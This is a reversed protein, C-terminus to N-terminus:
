GRRVVCWRWCPAAAAARGPRPCRLASGTNCPRRGRTACPRGRLRFAAGHVCRTRRVVRHKPGQALFLVRAKKASGHRMGIQRDDVRMMVQPVKGMSRQVVRPELVRLGFRVEEAVLRRELVVVQRGVIAAVGGTVVDNCGHVDLGLAAALLLDLFGRPEGRLCAVCPNGVGDDRVRPKVGVIRRATSACCAANGSTRPIRDLGTVRRAGSMSSCSTGPEM